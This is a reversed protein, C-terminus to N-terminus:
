DEENRRAMLMVMEQNMEVAEIRKRRGHLIFQHSLLV